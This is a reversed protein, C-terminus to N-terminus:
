HITKTDVPIALRDGRMGMGLYRDVTLQPRPAPLEPVRYEEFEADICGFLPEIHDDVLWSMDEDLVKCSLIAFYDMCRGDHLRNSIERPNRRFQNMRSDELYEGCVRCTETVSLDAAWQAYCSECTARPTARGSPHMESHSMQKGCILCRGPQATGYPIHEMFQAPFMKDLKKIKRYNKVIWKVIKRPDCM